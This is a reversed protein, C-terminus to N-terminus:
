LKYGSKIALKQVVTPKTCGMKTLNETLLESILLKSFDSEEDRLISPNPGQSNIVFHDGNTKRHGWSRSTL